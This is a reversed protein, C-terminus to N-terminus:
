GRARGVQEAFALVHRALSRGVGDDRHSGEWVAASLRLVPRREGELWREMSAHLRRQYADDVGAEESRNRERLRRTAVEPPVGMDVVGDADPALRGYLAHMYRYAAYWPPPIAGDARLMDAFVADGDLSRETVVLRPRRWPWMADVERMARQLADARTALTLVQFPVAYRGPDRYYEALLNHTADGDPMAQWLGVSEPVVLVDDGLHERLTGLLTSKGAGIVGEVSLVPPRRTWWARVWWAAAACGSTLLLLLPAAQM